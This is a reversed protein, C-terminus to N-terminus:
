PNVVGTEGETTLHIGRSRNGQPWCVVSGVGFLRICEYHYYSMGGAQNLGRFGDKDSLRFSM